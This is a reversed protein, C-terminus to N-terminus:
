SYRPYRSHPNPQPRHTADKVFREYQVHPYSGFNILLGLKFDTSKLYNMAQARHEDVLTKVAKIEVIIQGYCIFDPQYYQKLQHQKYRLRLEQQEKFPIRRDEFELALCEQYVAELFGNGKENYVDFSAGIIQYSEQKYLLEM